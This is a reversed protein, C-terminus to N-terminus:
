HGHVGADPVRLAAGARGRGGRHWRRRPALARACAARARGPLPQRRRLLVRARRARLVPAARSGMGFRRRREEKDEGLLRWRRRQPKTAHGSSSPASGGAPAACTAPTRSGRRRPQRARAREHRCSPSAPPPLTPRPGPSSWPTAKM